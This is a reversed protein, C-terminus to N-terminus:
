SNFFLKGLLSRSPKEKPVSLTTGDMFYFTANNADENVYKVQTINIFVAQGDKRYRAFQDIFKVNFVM